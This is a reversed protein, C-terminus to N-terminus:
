CTSHSDNRPRNSLVSSCEGRAGLPVRPEAFLERNGSCDANASAKGYGRWITQELDRFEIGVRAIPEIMLSAPRDRIRTETIPKEPYRHTASRFGKICHQETVAFRGDRDSIPSENVLRPANQRQVKRNAGTFRRLVYGPSHGSRAIAAHCASRGRRWSPWRKRVVRSGSAAAVVADDEAPSIAPPSGRSPTM